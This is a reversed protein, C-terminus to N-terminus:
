DRLYSAAQEPTVVNIMMGTGFEFGAITTLKPIVEIHWHYGEDESKCPTTHLFLNYSPNGLVEDFRRLIKQLVGALAKARGDDIREFFPLHDSPLIWTEFPLRAAFPAFAFFGDEDAVLRKGERRESEILDCYICRGHEARYAESGALQEEVAPPILPMAFLQSHSHELSAGANKGHNVIIEVFDVEPRTQFYLYREKYAKIVLAVQDLPLNALSKTHDPSHIIVEHGGASFASEYLGGDPHVVLDGSAFVPYKNPVVRVQWGSSDPGEGNRGIALTEPPTMNENGYCFACKAATKSPGQFQDPRKARETAIVVWNGTIPDRRLEPM